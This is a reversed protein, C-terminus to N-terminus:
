QQTLSLAFDALAVVVALGVPATPALEAAEVVLLLLHM